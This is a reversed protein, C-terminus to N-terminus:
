FSYPFKIVNWTLHGFDKFDIIKTGIRIGSIVFMTVFKSLTKLKGLFSFDPTVAAVDLQDLGLLSVHSLVLANGTFHLPV